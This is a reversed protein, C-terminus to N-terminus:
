WPTGAVIGDLAEWGLHIHDVHDTVTSKLTGDDVHYKGHGDLFVSNVGTGHCYPFASGYSGGDPRFDEAYFNDAIIAAGPPDRSIRCPSPQSTKMTSTKLHCRYWYSIYVYRTANEWCEDLSRPNSIFYHVNGYNRRKDSPCFYIHGDQIYNLKRLMGLGVPGGGPDVSQPYQAWPIGNRKYHNVNGTQLGSLGGTVNWPLLYGNEDNAYMGTAVFLQKQGSLCSMRRAIMISSQLAPLLLGALISIISIVVLLEVLTFAANSGRWKFNHPLGWKGYPPPNSAPVADAVASASASKAAALGSCPQQGAFKAMNGTFVSDTMKEGKIMIRPESVLGRKNAKEMIAQYQGSAALENRMDHLVRWLSTVRYVGHDVIDGAAVEAKHIVCEAPCKKRFGGSVTLHIKDPRQDILGYHYLASAYSLAAQIEGKRNRSWLCWRAADAEHMDTYGPLRFLGWDLKLWEGKVWFPRHLNKPFGSKVAQAATFYGFQSEAINKLEFQNMTQWYIKQLVLEFYSLYL